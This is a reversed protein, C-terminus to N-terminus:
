RGTVSHSQKPFDAWYGPGVMPKTEPFQQERATNARREHATWAWFARRRRSRAEARYRQLVKLRHKRLSAGKMRAGYRDNVVRLNISFGKQLPSAFDLMEETLARVDAIDKCLGAMSQPDPSGDDQVAALAEEVTELRVEAEALALALFGRTDGPSLDDVAIEPQNLIVALWKRLMQPDPRGTVGHKRANGAVVAKGAASKPGTSKQANAVNRAAIRDTTM